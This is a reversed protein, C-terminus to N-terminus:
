GCPSEQNILKNCLAAVKALEDKTFENRVRAELENEKDEAEWDKLTNMTVVAYESKYINFDTTDYAPYGSDICYEVCANATHKSDCVFGENTVTNIVIFFM